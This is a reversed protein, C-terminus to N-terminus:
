SISTRKLQPGFVVGAERFLAEAADPKFVVRDSELSEEIRQVLQRLRYSEENLATIRTETDEVVQAVVRIDEEKFDFSELAARKNQIDRASLRFLVMSRPPISMMAM